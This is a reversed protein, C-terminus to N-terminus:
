YFYLRFCLIMTVLAVSNVNSSASSYAKKPSPKIDDQISKRTHEKVKEPRAEDSAMDHDFNHELPKASVTVLRVTTFSEKNKTENEKNPKLKEDEKPKKTKVADENDEPTTVSSSMEYETTSTTTNVPSTIAKTSIKADVEVTTDPKKGTVAVNPIRSSNTCNALDRVDIYFLKGNLQTEDYYEYDTNQVQSEEEEAFVQGTNKEVEETKAWLERLNNDPNCKLNEIARKFHVNQTKNMLSIFWDLRCDCPFNNEEVDLSSINGYFNKLIPAMVQPKLEILLNSKLNLMTLSKLGEFTKVNEIATLKNHALNLVNLQGLGNFAKEDLMQIKNEELNLTKLNTLPLFTNDGIVELNNSSLDLKQLNRLGSFTESNLSFLGNRDIELEKLNILHVFAKDHITTIKNNTLYLTELSPLEIFVDRNIEIINNSDLGLVSLDRHHAFAHRKLIKIQNDSLMIEEVLSLNAFAYADIREINGYKVEIKLLKNTHKLANTPIYPIAIGRTNSVTLKTIDKLIEFNDWTKDDTPVDKKVMHCSASRILNANGAQICYCQVANTNNYIPDCISASTERKQYHYSKAEAFMSTAFALTLIRWFAM